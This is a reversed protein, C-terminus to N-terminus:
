LVRFDRMWGVLEWFGLHNRIAKEESSMLGWVGVEVKELRQFKPSPSFPLSMELSGYLSIFPRSSYSRTIVSGLSDSYCGYTSTLLYIARIDTCGSVGKQHHCAGKLKDYGAPFM